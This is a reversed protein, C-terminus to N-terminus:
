SLAGQHSRRLASVPLIRGPQTAAKDGKYCGQYMATGSSLPTAHNTRYKAQDPMNGPQCGLCLLSIEVPM